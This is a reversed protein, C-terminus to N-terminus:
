LRQWVFWIIVAVIVVSLCGGTEGGEAEGSQIKVLKKLEKDMQKEWNQPLEFTITKKIILPNEETGEHDTGIISVIEDLDSPIDKLKEVQSGINDKLLGSIAEYEESLNTFFLKEEFEVIQELYDRILRTIHHIEEANGPVGPDGWSQTLKSLLNEIPAVLNSQESLSRQVWGFVDEDEVHTQPRLYLKERLDELKRFLPQNLIRMLEATLRYEWGDSKDIVIRRILPPYELFIASRSLKDQLHIRDTANGLESLTFAEHEERWSFLIQSTYRNDDTDILKHYNRCLWIANTIEARAADCMAFVYRKSKKRAGFIHAAEGM